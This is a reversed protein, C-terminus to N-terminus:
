EEYINITIKGFQGGRGLLDIADAANELSFTHSIEPIISHNNVFNVMAAFDADTGMSTGQLRIQKWFIKHMNVNMASGLTAGYSVITGGPKCLSLLTNIQDGGAGDIIIDFGGSKDLIQTNWNENRYNAGGAAGMLLAKNINEHRSSSCYVNAGLAIAFQMAFLAVGGGIGTILITQGVEANGQTFLTRYATLGALPLAAAQIASLHEPKRHLRVIPVALYEALTGNVPMGLISYNAGQARPNDGWNFSPNIIVKRDIWEKPGETVVGCGDSGLIAPYQIKSYQGQTIYYDRRNLAAASLRIIATNEEARIPMDVQQLAPVSNKTTLVIARM